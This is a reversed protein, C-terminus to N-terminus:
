LISRMMSPSSSSMTLQEATHEAALASVIDDLEDHIAFQVVDDAREGRFVRSLLERLECFFGRSLGPLSRPTPCRRARPSTAAPRPRHNRVPSGPRTERVPSETRLQF